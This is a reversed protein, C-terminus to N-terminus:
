GKELKEKVIHCAFDGVIDRKSFIFINIRKVLLLNYRQASFLDPVKCLGICKHKQPPCYASVTIYANTTREAPAIKYFIFFSRLVPSGIM